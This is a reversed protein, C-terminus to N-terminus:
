VRVTAIREDEGLEAIEEWSLSHRIDRSDLWALVGEKGRRSRLSDVIFVIGKQLRGLAAAKSGGYAAFGVVNSRAVWRGGEETISRDYCIWLRQNPALAAKVRKGRRAGTIM